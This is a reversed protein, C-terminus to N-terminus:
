GGGALNLSVALVSEFLYAEYKPSLERTYRSM